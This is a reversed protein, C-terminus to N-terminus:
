VDEMIKQIENHGALMGTGCVAFCGRLKVVEVNWLWTMIVTIFQFRFEGQTTCHCIDAVAEGGDVLLTSPYTHCKWGTASALSNAVEWSHM